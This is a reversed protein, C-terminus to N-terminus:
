LLSEPRGFCENLLVLPCAQMYTLRVTVAAFRVALRSRLDLQSNKVAVVKFYAIPTPIVGAAAM